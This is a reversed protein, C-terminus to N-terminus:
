APRPLQQRLVEKILANNGNESNIFEGLRKIIDLAINLQANSVGNLESSMLRPVDIGFLIYDASVGVSDCIKMIASGSIAACGREIKGVYQGSLGVLRGFRSMSMGRERRLRGVREGVAKWM